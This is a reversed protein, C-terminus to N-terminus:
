STVNVSNGGATLEADNGCDPWYCQGRWCVNCKIYPQPHRHIKGEAALRRREAIVSSITPPATDCPEAQDQRREAEVAKGSRNRAVGSSKRRLLRM